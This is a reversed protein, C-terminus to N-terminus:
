GDSQGPNPTLSPGIPTWPGFSATHAVWGGSAPVDPIWPLDPPQSPIWSIWFPGIYENSDVDFQVTVDGYLVYDVSLQSKVDFNFRVDAVFKRFAYVIFRSWTNVTVNAYDDSFGLYNHLAAKAYVQIRATSAFMEVPQYSYFGDSYDMMGYDSESFDAM